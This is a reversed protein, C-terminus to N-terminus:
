NGTTLRGFPGFDAYNKYTNSHRTCVLGVNIFLERTTFIYYTTGLDLVGITAPITLDVVNVHLFVLIEAM